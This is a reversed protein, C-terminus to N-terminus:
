VVGSRDPASTLLRSPQPYTHSRSRPRPAPMASRITIVWRATSFDTEAGEVFRIEGGGSALRRRTSATNGSQSPKVYSCSPSWGIDASSLGHLRATSQGNNVAKVM